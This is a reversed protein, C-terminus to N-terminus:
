DEFRRAGGAAPAAFRREVVAAADPTGTGNTAAEGVEQKRTAWSPHPFQVLLPVPIEPQAVIMSGPKLLGARERMAAGLFRYEGRQAEATDLRGVVRFASNAIIRPEVESATQQAGILIVGLSRGREAIDLLVGKIPSEGERPAYKNLEDIVVFLPPPREAGARSERAELQERLVAGVVFRQARDHLRHIDVVTVQRDLAIAHGTAAAKRVFAEGRVLHGVHPAAARLRRMFARVTGVSASGSGTGNWRDALESDPDVHSEIADVLEDFTTVAVGDIEVDASGPTSLRAIRRLRAEVADVVYGVQSRDHDGDVFLFQILSRECFERLTWCFAAVGEQRSGTDPLPLEGRRAPAFFAVSGFAGAPLGLTEYAARADRDAALRRNPRDLFLLDEGKVNFILARANAARDGLVGGEFLAYLLFTAYSTKTAVGSVGSINVHAGRTGDLFELNGHVPEGSRALGLPLREQMADFYLATSRLAGQALSVPRGPMPPVFIEPEVRTVAVHAAVVTQAPLVGENTLAVDSTLTVGEQRATVEDVVGFVDIARGDPLATRVHVVDDLELYREPDVLVSFGLPSAAADETGLVLGRHADDHRPGEDGPGAHDRDSRRNRPSRPDRTM